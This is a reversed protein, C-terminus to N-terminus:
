SMFSFVIPCSLRKIASSNLAKVNLTELRLQILIYISCFYVLSCTQKRPAKLRIKRQSSDKQLSTTLMM